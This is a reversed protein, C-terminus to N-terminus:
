GVGDPRIPHTFEFWPNILRKNSINPILQAFCNIHLHNAVLKRPVRKRMGATSYNKKEKKGKTIFIVKTPIVLM